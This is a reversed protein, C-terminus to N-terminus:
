TFETKRIEVPFPPLCGTIDEFAVFDAHPERMLIARPSGTLDWGTVTEAAAAYASLKAGTIIEAKLGQAKLSPLMNEANPCDAAKAHTAVMVAMFACWVVFAATDAARFHRRDRM